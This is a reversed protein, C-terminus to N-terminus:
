ATTPQPSNCLHDALFGLLIRVEFSIGKGQPLILPKLARSIEGLLQESLIEISRRLTFVIDVLPLQGTM